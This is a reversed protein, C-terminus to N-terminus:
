VSGRETIKYPAYVSVMPSLGLVMRAAQRGMEELPQHLTTLPPITMFALRSDDYGMVALGEPVPIGREYAASLAGAAMEDSAAFVATFARSELLELTGTRGSDFDFSGYRILEEEVPFGAEVLADKYGLLRPAGSVGDAPSGSLMAIRSHGRAILMRVADRAASYDDVKVFPINYHSGITSLLVIPIELNHLEQEYEESLQGSMYIIGRVRKEKLIQLYDMTRVGDNATNCIITTYNNEHVIEEIGSLFQSTVRGGISPHLVGITRTKGGVLERAIANPEYQLDEIVKRIKQETEGSYGGSRNIVRSVTATSVGSLKAVDM